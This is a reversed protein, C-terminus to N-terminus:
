VVTIRREEVGGVTLVSKVTQSVAIYRAAKGYKWRSKLPFAVRRSVVLPPGGVVAALTHARADHAHVLDYRRGDLAKLLGLAEVNWGRARASQFLPSQDRALLKSEIGLAALGEILRLVQWQGGRLERGSDLHLVKM